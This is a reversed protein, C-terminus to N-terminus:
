AERRTLPATARTAAHAIPSLTLLGIWTWRALARRWPMLREVGVLGVFFTTLVLGDSVQWIRLERIVAIFVLVSLAQKFFRPQGPKDYSRQVRRLYPVTWRLLPHASWRTLYPSPEDGAFWAFVLSWILVGASLWAFRLIPDQTLLSFLTTVFWFPAARAYIEAGTTQLHHMALTDNHGELREYVYYAWRETLRPSIWFADLVAGAIAIEIHSLGFLGLLLPLGIGYIWREVLTSYVGAGLFSFIPRWQFHRLALAGRTRLDVWQTALAALVVSLEALVLAAPLEWRPDQRTLADLHRFDWTAGAAFVTLLAGFFAVDLKAYRRQHLTRALRLIRARLTPAAGRFGPSLAAGALAQTGLSLKSPSAGFSSAQASRCPAWSVFLSVILGCAIARRKM